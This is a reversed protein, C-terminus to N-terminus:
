AALIIKHTKDLMPHGGMINAWRNEKATDTNRQINHHDVFDAMANVVGWGTGKFKRIDLEDYANLFQKRSDEINRIKRETDNDNIPFITTIVKELMEDDVKTNALIDAEVDLASMYDAVLGLTHKAEELKATLNGMHRTSWTRSAEKLAVNLTNNCVVRTPTLCVKVCGTGDHTNTFCLYPVVDDGLIKVSDMKALLWITKGDRLSGATEYTVGEGLMADTFAFADRNQIIEYRNGVIGLVSNDTTRVNAYYNPIVLGSVSDKIQRAEVEWDLGACVIADASTPAEEVPTGLGHWPVFRGTNDNYNAYFMTEVLASM